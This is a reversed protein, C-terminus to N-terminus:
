KDESSASSHVDGRSHEHSKAPAAAAAPPALVPEPALVPLAKAKCGIIAASLVVVFLRM